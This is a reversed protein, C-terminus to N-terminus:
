RRGEEKRKDKEKVMIYLVQINCKNNNIKNNNKINNVMIQIHIINKHNKNHNTYMKNLNTLITKIIKM